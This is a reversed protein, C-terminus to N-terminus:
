LSYVVRPTLSAKLHQSSGPKSPYSIVSCRMGNSHKCGVQFHIATSFQLRQLRSLFNLAWFHMARLAEFASSRTAAAIGKNKGKESNLCPLLISTSSRDLRATLWQLRNTVHGVHVLGPLHNRPAKCTPSLTEHSAPTINACNYQRLLMYVGINSPHFQPAHISTCLGDYVLKMWSRTRPHKNSFCKPMTQKRRKKHCCLLSNGHKLKFQEYRQLFPAPAKTWSSILTSSAHNRSLSVFYFQKSPHCDIFDRPPLHEPDAVQMMM